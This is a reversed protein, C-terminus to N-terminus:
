RVFVYNEPKPKREVAVPISPGRAITLWRGEGLHLELTGATVGDWYTVADYADETIDFEKGAYHLTYIDSAM